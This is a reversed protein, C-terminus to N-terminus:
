RLMAAGARPGEGAGSGSTALPIPGFVFQGGVLTAVVRGAASHGALPDHPSRSRRSARRRLGTSPDVLVLDAVAGPAVRPDLGILRGPETSMASFLLAPADGLALLAAGLASELGAAGFAASEFDGEKDVLGTPVHASVIATIAGQRLGETLAARDAAARLPPRVKFATDYGSAEVDEDCLVLNRAAVTACIPLGRSRAESILALGRASSVPGAVVRAGSLACLAINRMLGIEEAAVPLGRLGLRLAALGEHMLGRAELTAEGAQLFVPRGWPRAYELCRRLAEADSHLHLGDSFAAAGAEALLGMEAPEAGQLGQSLAAAAFIRAGSVQRGRALLDRLVAPSDVCPDTQPSVLVSTYGGAAAAEAGSQLDERHPAGPDALDAGLDVLGPGVWLGACDFVAAAAPADLDPGVAVIREGEILVDAVADYGTAPCIVRGGKLLWM